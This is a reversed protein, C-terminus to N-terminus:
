FTFESIFHFNLNEWVFIYLEIKLIKFYWKEFIWVLPNKFNHRNWEDNVRFTGKAMDKCGLTM